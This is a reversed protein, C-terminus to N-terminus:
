APTRARAAEIAANVKLAQVTAAVDHVRVMTVGARTGSLAATLSGGLRQWPEVATSDCARIFGKRSAGLVVPFGLAAITELHALLTLNHDTTKGFGLGPDLWIRERAVGAAIAARARDTLFGVVEAVVDEYRPGAQMTAPEGQMHMLIVECGLAAATALSDPGHTLATVDNWLGVGARVAAAAVAPKLTDISLPVRHRARLAEIVPIVRALEEELSVPTAGPRTSEGGIDLIDAGEAILREAHAVAADVALFRGGDSFSDPTVNVIGMVRPRRPLTM